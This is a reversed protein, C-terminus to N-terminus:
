IKIILNLINYRSIDSRISPPDHDSSRVNVIASPFSTRQLGTNRIINDADCNIIYCRFFFLRAVRIDIM